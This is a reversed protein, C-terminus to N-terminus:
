RRLMRKLRPKLNFKVTHHFRALPTRNYVYTWAIPRGISTWDRKSENSVGLFDYECLGDRFARELVSEKLIQGPSFAGFAPDYGIKLCYLIRGYELDYEFAIRRGAVRLFWLRLWGRLAALVGWEAYFRTLTPDSAIASGAEGKWSSREIAFAEELAAAAREPDTVLEHEVPGIRELRRTRNRLNSRFKPKLSDRYREWTGELPLYPSPGGHWNGASCGAERSTRLVADYSSAALDQLEVVDWAERGRRLFEWAVRLAEEEGPALLAAFRFSHANTWSRLTAMPIGLFWSNSRFLPLALVLRGSRRAILVRRGRGAGFHRWWLSLWEHRM